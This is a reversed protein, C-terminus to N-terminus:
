GRTGNISSRGTCLLMIHLRIVVMVVMVIVIVMCVTCLRRRASSSPLIRYQMGEGGREFIFVGGGVFFLPDRTIM